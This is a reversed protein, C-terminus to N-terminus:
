YSLIWAGTTTNQGTPVGILGTTDNYPGQDTIYAMNSATTGDTTYCTQGPTTGVPFPQCKVVKAHGDAWGVNATSNHRADITNGQPYCSQLTTTGTANTGMSFYGDSMLGTQDPFTLSADTTTRGSFTVLTSSLFNTNLGAPSLNWPMNVAPVMAMISPNVAYSIYAVNPTGVCVRGGGLMNALTSTPTAQPKDPCTLIGASKSYPGLAAYWFTYCPTGLGSSDSGVYGALPFTEDYDQVYTLVSLTNQKLNSLCSTQRAKERAAAFVPFLIAALIAIIAIVVLLEILTFGHSGSQNGSRKM